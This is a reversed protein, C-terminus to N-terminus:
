NLCKLFYSRSTSFLSHEPAGFFNSSSSNSANRWSSEHWACASSASNNPSSWVFTEFGKFANSMIWFCLCLTGNSNFGLSTSHGRIVPSCSSWRCFLFTKQMTDHGAIFLPYVVLVWLTSSRPTIETMRCCWRCFRIDMTRLKQKVNPQILKTYNIILLKFWGFGNRSFATSLLQHTQVLFQLFFRGSNSLSVIFRNQLM